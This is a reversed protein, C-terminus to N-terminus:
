PPTVTRHSVGHRWANSFRPGTDVTNGPINEALGVHRLLKGFIGKGPVRCKRGAGEHRRVNMRGLVLEDVQEVAPEVQYELPALENGRGAIQDPQRHVHRVADEVLGVLGHLAKEPHRRRALEVIQEPRDVTHLFLVRRIHDRDGGLV